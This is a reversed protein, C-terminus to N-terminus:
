QTITIAPDTCLKHDQDNTHWLVELRVVSFVGEHSLEVYTRGILPKGCTDCPGILKISRGVTFGEKAILPEIPEGIVDDKYYYNLETLSTM